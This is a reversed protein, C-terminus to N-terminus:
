TSYEVLEILVGGTFKPHIFNISSDNSGKQPAPYVLSIGAALLKQGAFELNKVSLAVQQVGEGHKELFKGITSTSELAALLQIKSGDPFLILAEEVGQQTNIERSHIAGGFVSVWFNLSKELDAVALGVHDVGIVLEGLVEQPAPM